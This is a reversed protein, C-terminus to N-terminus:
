WWRWWWWCCFFLLCEEVEAEASETEEEDEEAVADEAPATRPWSGFFGVSPVALEADPEDLNRKLLTAAKLLFLCFGEGGDLCIWPRLDLFIESDLLGEFEDLYRSPSVPMKLMSGPVSGRGARRGMVGNSVSGDGM